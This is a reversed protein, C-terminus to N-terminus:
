DWMTVCPIHFEQMRAKLRNLTYRGEVLDSGIRCIEVFGEGDGDNRYTARATMPAM